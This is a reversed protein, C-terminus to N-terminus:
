TTTEEFVGKISDESVILATEGDIRLETGGHKALLVVDGVRVTCPIPPGEKPYRYQHPGRPTEINVVRCPQRGPGVQLVVAKRNEPAFYADLHLSGEMLEPDLRRVLVRNGFLRISNIM